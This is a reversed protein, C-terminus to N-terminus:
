FNDPGVGLLATRPYKLIDISIQYGINYPLNSITAKGTIIQSVIFVAILSNFLIIPILILKLVLSTKKAMLGFFLALSIAVLALLSTSNGTPSWLPVFSGTFLPQFIKFLTALLSG